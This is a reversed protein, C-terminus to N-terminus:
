DEWYGGTTFLALNGNRTDMRSLQCIVKVDSILQLGYPTEKPLQLDAYDDLRDLRFHVDRKAGVRLSIDEIPERDEFYITLEIKAEKASPNMVCIAEHSPEIPGEDPQPLYGDPFFWKTAGFNDESM